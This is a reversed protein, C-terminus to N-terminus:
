RTSQKAPKLLTLDINVIGDYAEPWPATLADTLFRSTLPRRLWHDQPLGRFDVFSYPKGSAHFLSELNDDVPALSPHPGAVLVELVENPTRTEAFAMSYVAAGFERAIAFGEGFPTARLGGFPYADKLISQNDSWVVIKTDPRWEKALLLLSDAPAQVHGSAFWWINALTQRYFSAERGNPDGAAVRGLGDSLKALAALGPPLAQQWQREAHAPDVGRPPYWYDARATSLTVLPTLAQRDAPLALQPNVRDVFQYLQKLYQDPQDAPIASGFGALHLPHESKRIDRVYNVIDLQTIPEQTQYGFANLSMRLLQFNPLAGRQLLSDLQAADFLPAAFALVDFGMEEHLFHVLRSKAKVVAVDRSGGLLVIRAPGICQQIARLDAFDHDRPDVSRIPAANKTLWSVKGASSHVPPQALLPIGAAALALTVFTPCARHM